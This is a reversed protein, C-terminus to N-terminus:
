SWSPSRLRRRTTVIRLTWIQLPLNSGLSSCPSVPAEGAGSERRGRALCDRVADSAM